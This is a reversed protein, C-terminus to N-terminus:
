SGGFDAVVAPQVANAFSRIFDAKNKAEESSYSNKRAYDQWVTGSSNAPTLGATGDAAPNDISAPREALVLTKSDLVKAVCPVDGRPSVDCRGERDVTGLLVFPSEAIFVRMHEVTEKSLGPQGLLRTYFTPVGMMVTCLPLKALVAEADFRPLFVMPTGNLLACHSAIFLGHVHFIPLAHLLVDEPQWGWATCLARANSALNGHTLMAGKSRGTTGSTYLIAALDDDSRPM